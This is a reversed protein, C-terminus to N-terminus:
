VKQEGVQGQVEAHVALEKPTPDRQEDGTRGFFPRRLTGPPLDALQGPMDNPVPATGPNEGKIAAAEDVPESTSELRNQPKPKEEM